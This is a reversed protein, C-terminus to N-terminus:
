KLAELLEDRSFRRLLGRVAEQPTDVRITATRPRFGAEQAAAHASLEGALVRQYLDARDRRLRRRTYDETTGRVTINSRNRETKPPSGPQRLPEDLLEVVTPDDGCMSRLVEITTGLGELPPTTVFDRFSDFEIIKGTRAIKRKRWAGLEAIRRMAKPANSLGFGGEVIANRLADVVYDNEVLDTHSSM